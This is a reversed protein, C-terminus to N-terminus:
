PWQSQKLWNAAMLAYDRFNVRQGPTDATYINAVAGSASM